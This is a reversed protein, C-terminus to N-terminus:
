RWHSQRISHHNFLLAVPSYDLDIDQENDNNNSATISTLSLKDWKYEIKVSGGQTNVELNNIDNRALSNPLIGNYDREDVAKRFPFGLQVQDRYSFSPTVTLKENPKWVFKARLSKQENKDVPINLFSNEFYGDFDEYSLSLRAFLEDTGEYSTCQSVSTFCGFVSYNSSKEIM